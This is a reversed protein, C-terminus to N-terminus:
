EDYIDCALYEDNMVRNSFLGFVMRCHTNSTNMNTLSLYQERLAKSELAISYAIKNLYKYDIYIYIYIYETINSPTEELLEKWFQCYLDISYSMNEQFKTFNQHFTILKYIELSHYGTGTGGELKQLRMM